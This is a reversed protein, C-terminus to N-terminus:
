IEEAALDAAELAFLAASELGMQLPLMRSNHLELDLVLDLQLGSAIAGLQVGRPSSIPPRGRHGLAELAVATAELARIAAGEVRVLSTVSGLVGTVDVRAVLAVELGSLLCREVRVYLALVLRRSRRPVGLLGLEEGATLAVVLVLALVLELNVYRPLVGVVELERALSAPLLELDLAIQRVVHPEAMPLLRHDAVDAALGTQVAIREVDMLFESVVLRLVLALHAFAPHDALLVEVLVHEPLVLLALVDDALLAALGERSVAPELDVHAYVGAVFRVVASDAVFREGPSVGQLLMEENVGAHPGVDAVYAAFGEGLLRSEDAM